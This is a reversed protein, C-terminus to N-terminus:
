KPAKFVTETFEFISYREPEIRGFVFPVPGAEAVYFGAGSSLKMTALWQNPRTEFSAIEKAFDAPPPRVNSNDSPVALLDGENLHMLRMDVPKAGALQMYYQFGWHGMFWLTKQQPPYATAIRLAAARASNALHCDAVGVGIAVLVSPILPWGLASRGSMSARANELKRTILIAAAPLGPLFSRAAVTWNIVAAFLLVGLVWACLLWSAADREKVWNEFALMLVGLGTVALVAMQALLGVRINGNSRLEAMGLKGFWLGLGGLVICGFVGLALGRRKWLLRSYFLAPLFCGGMFSLGILWKSKQSSAFGASGYSAYGRALSFLATGYLSSTMAQYCVITGAPILLPLVWIGIGRKHVLGYLLLLPPLLVASYKTLFALGCFVGSGVLWGFHKQNMGRIWFVTAWTWLAAVPLDTMLTSACVMFVPSCIVILTALLPQGCLLRALHYCGLAFGSAWLLFSGHMVAESWGAVGGVAALFYSTLPPNYNISWMPESTNAWNVNFGYFDIPKATIHQAAWIFLPDDIHVAKDLCPALLCVVAAIIVLQRGAPLRYIWARPNVAVNPESNPM